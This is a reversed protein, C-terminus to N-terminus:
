VLGVWRAIPLFLAQIFAVPNPVPWKLYVGLAYLGGLLSLGGSVAAERRRKRKLLAGVELYAIVAYPILVAVTKM